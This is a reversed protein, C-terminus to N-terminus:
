RQGDPPYAVLSTLYFLAMGWVHPPSVATTVQGDRVYWAEGTLGTDSTRNRHAIWRLGRRVDGLRGPDAEAWTHALALLAKAEYQDRRRAGVPADFSPAVRHWTLEAQARIRPHESPRFRVPWLLYDAGGRSGFARPDDPDSAHRDIATDLEDARATWRSAQGGRGTAQAALAAQRLGLLAPAASVLTAPRPPRLNDDEFAPRPLGTSPDRWRTLFDAAASVAPWVEALYDGDGSHEWYRVLTWLGLGTEDIEFPIPGGAVGDAYLNMPWNGRPTLWAGPPRQGARVITTAYFRNHKAVIEPHGAALLAENLYAGDRVWDLGYPPQTNISAVVAATERDVAQGLVILARQAHRLIEPDDTAPLSADALWGDWWAAKAARRDRGTSPGVRQGGPNASSTPASRHARATITLTADTTTAVTILANVSGSRSRRRGGDRPARGALLALPEVETEDGRRRSRAPGLDVFPAPGDWGMAVEVSRRQHTWRDHGAAAWVVRDGDVRADGGHLADLYSDWVPVLPLRHVTPHISAFAVFGVVACTTDGDAIVHHERAFVDDAADVTDTVEVVLELDDFRHTTVVTDSREDLYRQEVEDADRLWRLRRRGDGDDWVLGSFVGESDLAGWRPRSRSTTLYRLQDCYSPSPWRLVTVTGDAAVGVSMGGNGLTANVATPGYLNEIAPVDRDSSRVRGVV